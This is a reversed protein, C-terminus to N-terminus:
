DGKLFLEREERRRNQLGRIVVGGSKHWNLIADAALQINGENLFKVAKSRRANGIGINFCLSLLAIFQNKTVPVHIASALGNAHFKLDQIFLRNSEEKSITMGPHVEKGTHGVGITWVGASCQYATLKEGEKERVFDMALEVPWQNFPKKTIM